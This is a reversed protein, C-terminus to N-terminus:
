AVIKLKKEPHIEYFERKHRRIFLKIMKIQFMKQKYDKILRRKLLEPNRLGKNTLQTVYLDILNKCSILQDETECSNIINLIKKVPVFVVEQM